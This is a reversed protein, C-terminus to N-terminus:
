LLPPLLRSLMTVGVGIELVISSENGIGGSVARGLGLGLEDDVVVEGGREDIGGAGTRLEGGPIRYTEDFPVIAAEPEVDVVLGRLFFGISIGPFHILESSSSSSSSSCSFLPHARMMTAPRARHNDVAGLAQTLSGMTLVGGARSDLRWLKTALKMNMKVLALWHKQM